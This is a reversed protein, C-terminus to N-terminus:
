PSLYFSFLLWPIYTGLVPLFSFLRVEDLLEFGGFTMWPMMSGLVDLFLCNWLINGLWMCLFLLSASGLFVSLSETSVDLFLYYAFTKSSAWDLYYLFIARFSLYQSYNMYNRSSLALGLFYSLFRGMSFYSLFRGMSWRMVCIIM